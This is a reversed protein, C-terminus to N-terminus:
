APGKKRSRRKRTWARRLEEPSAAPEIADLIKGLLEHDQIERLEPMLKLGEDGFKMKLCAEIGKLLGKELGVREFITMFPMRKEQQYATLEQQFLREQEPPLDMIWDVFRFLQRIDEPDMGREYLGKVLRLKWAHRDAPSRRTELTKLHALVVMAFPNLDTELAQWHPAYDLLKVIPFETSTRFGWRGYGYQSPRWAPDDDALIALSIVEQDYRDFIRHNYVYMRKPFDGEKWAQVEVHILLWREEGSKLWVKVLKDVYRRGHQAQRVIPQLEKDLMEYGHTWDIDAHAQPFFFAMCREFYRDLAEKWPSDSDTAPSSRARSRGAM